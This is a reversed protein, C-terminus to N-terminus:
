RRSEAELRDRAADILRVAARRTRGGPAELAVLSRAQTLVRPARHRGIPGEHCGSATLLADLAQEDTRSQQALALATTQARQALEPLRGLRGPPAPGPEWEHGAVWRDILVAAGIGVAVPVGVDMFAPAGHVHLLQWIFSALWWAPFWWRLWGIGAFVRGLRTRAEQRGAGSSTSEIVALELLEAAPPLHRDRTRAAVAYAARLEFTRGHALEVLERVTARVDTRHARERAREVLERVDAGAMSRRYGLLRSDAAPHHEDSGASRM